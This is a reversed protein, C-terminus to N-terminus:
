SKIFSKAYDVVEKAIEGAKKIDKIDQSSLNSNQNDGSPENDTTKNPKNGIKNLTPSSSTGKVEHKSTGGYHKETM